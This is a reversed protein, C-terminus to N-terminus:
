DDTVMDSKIQQLQSAVLANFAAVALYIVVVVMSSMDASNYTNFIVFLVMIFSLGAGIWFLAASLGILRYIAKTAANSKFKV